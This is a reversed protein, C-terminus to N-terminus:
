WQKIGTKLRTEADILFNGSTVVTDGATLGATVEIFDETRQGTEVYRPQLRGDGLDVFVVRAGGSFLVASQPVALREGLDAQLAVQAYMDPRLRGDPNALALRIRGTRTASQMTPYVYDVEARYRADPLYPLTVEAAMGERVLPLESDYVQAEVWVRSLDAIRMLVRGKDVASGEVVNKTVVVGDRPSAIPLYDLPEGRRELAAIQGAPIDWRELRKRAAEVLGDGGYARRAARRHAALYERQAALLEPGYVTFLTEGRTVRAGVSDAVLEGVWADFRLTVDSLATEDYAVEGVARIERTLRRREAEATELGILQRRRTDLNITPLDSAAATAQSEDDSAEGKGAALRRGGTDLELGARGTAMDFSIRTEGVGTKAIELTLPWAGPMPLELTGRYQGPGTERLDAPAQMAPMSGMAPMTAVAKIRADSVPEGDSDELRIALRNRGVVPPEPALAVALRFPGSAYIPAEALSASEGRGRDAFILWGGVGVVALLVAALAPILVKRNM